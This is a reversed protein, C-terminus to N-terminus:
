GWLTLMATENQFDDERGIVVMNRGASLSLQASVLAVTANLIAAGAEDLAIAARVVMREAGYLGLRRTAESAADGSATLLTEIALEQSLLHKDQVGPDTAVEELWEQKLGSARVPDGTWVCGALDNDTHVHWRRSHTLRVKFTPVGGDTDPNAIFGLQGDTIIQPETLTKVPSGPAAFRGTTFWGLANAVIYAGVSGLVQRLASIGSAESDLYIGVEQTAVANLAAFASTDVAGSGLKTLIRQAVAGARRDASSSGEAVDATWVFGARGSFSGFPRWCGQALCTRYHGPNGTASRLASISAVDGDNVLAIGGDYATIASVAGDHVQIILDYPNALVGPVNFVKGFVLPKPKNKMDATGDISAGTGTLTGGYFNGQLPKDIDRRRDYFRLTLLGDAGELTEATAVLVTQATSLAANPSALRKLTVTRGSFGYGILADLGGDQNNLVLDGLEMTAEGLTRGSSAIHMAFSGLRAIRADYVANAPSDTPKSVYGESGFRLTVVSAGNHAAIEALWVSARPM